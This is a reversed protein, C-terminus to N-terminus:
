RQRYTDEFTNIQATVATLPAVIEPCDHKRYTNKFMNKFADDLRKRPHDTRFSFLSGMEHYNTYSTPDSFLTEGASPALVCIFEGPGFLDAYPLARRAYATRITIHLPTGKLSEELNPTTVIRFKGTGGIVGGLSILDIMTGWGHDLVADLKTRYPKYVPTQDILDLIAEPYIRGRAHIQPLDGPLGSNFLYAQDELRSRRM